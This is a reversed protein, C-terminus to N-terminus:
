RMKATSKQQIDVGDEHSDRMAGNIRLQQSTYFHHELTLLTWIRLPDVGFKLAYADQLHTTRILLRDRM